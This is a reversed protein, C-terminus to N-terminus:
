LKTGSWQSTFADNCYGWQGNFKDHAANFKLLIKGWHVRGDFAKILQAKGDKAKIKCPKASGNETWIGTFTRAKQDFKGRIRGGDESYTTHFPGKIKLTKPLLMKGYSTSWLESKCLVKLSAIYEALSPRLHKNKIISALIGGVEATLATSISLPDMGSTIDKILLAYSSGTPIPERSDAIIASLMSIGNGCPDRLKGANSIITGIAPAAGGLVKAGGADLIRGLGDAIAQRKAAEAGSVGQGFVPPASIIVMSAVCIAILTRIRKM